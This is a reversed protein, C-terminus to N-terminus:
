NCDYETDITSVDFDNAFTCRFIGNNTESRLVIPGDPTMYMYRTIMGFTYVGNAFGDITISTEGPEITIRGYNTFDFNDGAQAIADGWTFLTSQKRYFLEFESYVGASPLNWDLTVNSARNKARFIGRFQTSTPPDISPSICKWVGNAYEIIAPPVGNKYPHITFCYPRTDADVYPIGYVTVTNQTLFDYTYYGPLTSTTLTTETAVDDPDRRMKIVLGDFYGTTFNPLDFKLYLNELTDLTNALVVERIGSFNPVSPDTIVTRLPSRVQDVADCVITRCLVLVFDYSTYPELGTVPSLSDFYEVRKCYPPTAGPLSASLCPGTFNGLAVANSATTSYYIRFHDFIGTAPTWSTLVANLGQEGNALVVNFSSPEFKLNSPDDSVTSIVVYNTNLESRKRPDYVDNESGRHLCRIRVYYRKGPALGRMVYENNAVNSVFKAVWRDVTTDVDMDGPTLKESDVAIVEYEKPEWTEPFLSGSTRAPTWRVKISTKGDEGATNFASTIGGFDAVQYPFTTVTKQIGSSSQVTSEQDRVEVKITYPTLRLLGTLTAKLLGRYDPVLVDSPISIPYPDNGVQIDYTYKGSGGSAPYFFVEIRTDSIASVNTLGAFTLPYVPANQVNTYSPVTSQITGVCSSLLLLMFLALSTGFKM